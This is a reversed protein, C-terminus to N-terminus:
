FTDSDCIVLHVHWIFGIARPGAKWDSLIGGKESCLTLDIEIANTGLNLAL